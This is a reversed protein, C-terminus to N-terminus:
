GGGKHEHRAKDLLEYLENAQITAEARTTLDSPDKGIARWRTQDNEALRVLLAFAADDM